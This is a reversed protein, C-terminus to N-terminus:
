AAPPPAYRTAGICAAVVTLAGMALLVRPPGYADVLPAALAVGLPAAVSTLAFMSAFVRGQLREPTGRQVVTFVLANAPAVCFGGVAALGVDVALSAVAGMAAFAVGLLAMGGYIVARDALRRAIAAAALSGLLMGGGFGGMLAGFGQSGSHLTRQSLVPFVVAFPMILFNVATATVLVTALFRNSLLFALGARADDIVARAGSSPAEHPRDRWRMAAICGASAVFSGADFYLADVASPLVAVLVGALVPGALGALNTTMEAFANAETWDAPPLLQGIVAKEAAFFGISLTSVVFTVAYILWLPLSGWRWALPLSLVALARICDCAIMLRRRDARDVAVGAVWGFLAGPLVQALYVGGMATGSGTRQLVLWALAVYNFQNGLQSVVQGCWHLAFDRSRLVMPMPIGSGVRTDM